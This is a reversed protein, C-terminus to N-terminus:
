VLGGRGQDRQSVQTLADFLQLYMPMSCVNFDQEKDERESSPSM